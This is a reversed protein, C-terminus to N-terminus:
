VKNYLLRTIRVKDNNIAYYKLMLATELPTLLGMNYVVDPQYSDLSVPMYKQLEILNEDVVEIQHFFETQNIKKNYMDITYINTGICPKIPNINIIKLAEDDDIEFLLDSNPNVSSSSSSECGHMTFKINFNNLLYMDVHNWVNVRYKSPTKSNKIFDLISRADVFLTEDFYSNM